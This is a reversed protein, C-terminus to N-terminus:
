SEGDLYGEKRQTEQQKNMALLDLYNKSLDKLPELRGNLHEMMYNDRAM